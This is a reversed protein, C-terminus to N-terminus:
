GLWALKYNEVDLLLDGNQARLDFNCTMGDKSERLRSVNVFCPEGPDPIRGFRITGFRVPLSAKNFKKWAVVAVAYLCADMTACPVTWGQTRDAGFLQVHASAAILGWGGDKSISIKRLCQLEPGHYIHADREPYEILDWKLGATEPVAAKGLTPADTVKFQGEFFTKNEAVMRGDRRRIDAQLECTLWSGSASEASLSITLPDDTAFKIAQHAVVDRCEIVHRKGSQHRVAETMLELAVVFPLTPRQVVRHQSLFHEKVPDLTMSIRGASNRNEDQSSNLLPLRVKSAAASQDNIREAPFFKGFYSYDTILVEPEDGGFELEQLFHAVGDDAPMFEMDIMELALRAEPKTAMGVDGWAHWHFTVSSVEPRESRFRDVLKAMMDNALSYDTHGNAGFRGSISGYAVFWELADQETQDMLTIAGDIKASLCKEVKDPRKRDFRSDQGAGAGHLVGQISGDIRRIEALVRGVSDVDSVDCCHYTAQIGRQRCEQLTIDIEIAKQTNRWLEVPNQDGTATAMIQRRFQSRNKAAERLSDSVNPVPATGLLHLKLGHREALAMATMATIGRGGGSVVWTGGRTIQRGRRKGNVKNSLPAPFAQVSSRQTGSVSVEMDYSPVALENLIGDVALDVSTEPAVDVVKMPTTRFERMWCEILMAKVLGALSEPSQVGQGSFGLDGGLRSCAVVTSDEMLDADIVNQMWLQCVRFPIQLAKARRQNWRRADLDTVADQDFPTLIFLHPTPGSLWINALQMEAEAVSNADIVHVPQGAARIRTALASTLKNNGLLLAPGQLVPVTPMGERRPADTMRLAFRHTGSPKKAPVVSTAPPPNPSTPPNGTFAAAFRVSEIDVGAGSSLGRMEHEQIEDWAAPAIATTTPTEYTVSDVLLRLAARIEPRHRAGREAGVQWAVQLNDADSRAQFLEAWDEPLQDHSEVGIVTQQEPEVDQSQLQTSVLEESVQPAVSRGGHQEITNLLFKQISRLTRFDGLSLQDARIASLEFQEQMEGVIQAIKISDLGLEAELDADLDVIQRDYGTLDIVFDVLLNAVTDGFDTDASAVAMAPVVEEFAPEAIHVPAATVLTVDADAALAAIDALTRIERLRADTSNVELDAWEALEGIIQATKISDLGLEAELDADFDLIDREYGTLEVVLDLLFGKVASSSDVSQKAPQPDVVAAPAAPKAVSHGNRQSSGNATQKTALKKARSRTVDVIEVDDDNAAAMSQAPITEAVHQPVVAPSAIQPQASSLGSLACDMVADVLLMREAHSQGPVDLSVCVADNAVIERNLRTLVDNPGVELLILNNADILRRVSPQYLVPQTLQTVMSSRIAEPEALFQATTASLFGCSPPNLREGAVARQMSAEADALMSTHFPAPVPVVISAFRADNLSKRFEMVANEGGAVVTQSPSNNHTITIPLGSQRLLSDVENLSGKISLMVGRERSNMIVADSRHRIIRLAQELSIVGATIAAVYEGFSHGLVFDPRYGRATLSRSLAVGAGLVWLQTLWVDRGLRSGDTLQPTLPALGMSNLIGDIEALAAEAAPQETAVAPVAAYQSGQGPFLWAVRPPQPTLQWLVARQRDFVKRRTGKTWADLVTKLQAPLQRSGDTVISLRFVDGPQFPGRNLPAKQAIAATLLSQFEDATAAGIRFTGSATQPEPFNMSLPKMSRPESPRPAAVETVIQTSPVSGTTASAQVHISFGDAATSSLQVFNSDAPKSGHQWNLSESVLRVLPQSGSLYGIQRVLAADAPDYNSRDAPDDQIGTKIDGIIGLIQADQKVADSLRCLLLTVVGEGPLVKSCDDAVDEARGSLVLRGNMKLEEFASLDMARHAAGCIITDCQGKRLKDVAISLAALGSCDGADVAGAGGMLDFTKAIRSALTSATFSGTEDLLAPRNKLVIKRYADAIADADAHANEAKLQRQIERCIEPLRLGIQLQNGFETGFITGIIVATRQRDFSWKGGDFENVAQTVADLLMMQVPNAQQVQKPPIRYTQADFVFDTIYGGRSTPSRYAASEDTPDIGMQNRWREQPADIIASRGSALLEQFAPVNLAGPLVVGRGIIAIPEPNEQECDAAQNTATFQESQYEEVHLHANLGGIGFASIGARRQKGTPNWAEGDTVVKINGDSWDFTKNLSTVNISPAFEQRRLSLIVKVLGILGASELTHGINSKVSGIRVPSGSNRTDAIANVSQLETADGLQTSTAHAELYDIDLLGRGEYARQLALEQGERRPAWLSRGRGDSSIGIGTIVAEISLNHRKAQSLTTVLVAVYGESSILGSAGDDFPCTGKDSCAQSQSFLILNDAGNYTAGGVVASDIRGARIAMIAHDLAMLSSACAGDIVMRPGNLRLARAALSAALYANYQPGNVVSRQPRNKRLVDAVNRMLRQQALRDLEAFEPVDQLFILAEDIQTALGLDGGRATGGSHGVFVGCNKWADDGVSLGADRWAAAAVDCFQLHAPDFVTEPSSGDPSHLPNPERDSVCGGLDTYTMGARGRKSHFYLSKDLRSAPMEDVASRGNFLLSEFDSVSDCGPLRCAMGVIVIPDTAEASM